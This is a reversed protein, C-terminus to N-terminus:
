RIEDEMNLINPRFKKSQFLKQDFRGELEEGISEEQGQLSELLAQLETGLVVPEIVEPDSYSLALAKYRLPLTELIHQLAQVKVKAPSVTSSSSDTTLTAYTISTSAISTHHMWHTLEDSIIEGLIALTSLPSVTCTLSTSTTTSATSPPTPLPEVIRKTM